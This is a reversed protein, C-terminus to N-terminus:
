RRALRSPTPRPQRRHHDRCELCHRLSSSSGLTLSDDGGALHRGSATIASGPHRHRPEAASSPRSTPSLRAFLRLGLLHPSYGNGTGLIIAGATPLPRAHCRRHRHRRHHDRHQLGHRTPATPWPSATTAPAWISRHRHPAGLTIVDAGSGGIITEVRDGDRTAAPRPWPSATPAPARPQDHRRDRASPLPTTSPAAPSPRSTGHRDPHQPRTALALRRQRRRSRGGRRRPRPSPSPTPGPAAPSPRSM